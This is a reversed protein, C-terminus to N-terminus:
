AHQGRDLGIGTEPRGPDRGENPALVAPRQGDLGTALDRASDADEVCHAATYPEDVIRGKAVEDPEVPVAQDRVAGATTEGAREEGHVDRRAGRLDEIRGGALGHQAPVSIASRDDDVLDPRSAVVQPHDPEVATARPQKVTVRGAAPQHGTWGTGPAAGLVDPAPEEETRVPTQRDITRESRQEAVDRVPAGDM